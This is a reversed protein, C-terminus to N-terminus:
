VLVLYRFPVYGESLVEPVHYTTDFLVVAILPLNMVFTVALLKHSITNVSVPTNMCVSNAVCGGNNIGECEDIDKCVQIPCISLFFEVKVPTLM